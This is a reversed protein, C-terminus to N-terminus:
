SVQDDQNAFSINTRYGDQGFSFNFFSSIAIVYIKSKIKLEEAFDRGLNM